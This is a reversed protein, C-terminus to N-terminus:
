GIIGWSGTATQGPELVVVGEGTAFANPPCSMPEVGLGTRRKREPLHDGTFIEVWRFTEDVWLSVEAPADTPGEPAQLTVYARGDAERRLDTYAHDIATDGLQKMTRFDYPTGTVDKRGHPIGREDAPLWTAGPIRLPCDDIRSTGATLYPHAGHGYPAASAGANTASMRVTLGSGPDLTYEVSLDLVHPYGPHAYLRHIMLLRHAEREAVTWAEWRALGHLATRRHPETIDLQRREGQFEYRGDAIRNPWPVLIQGHGGPPIEDPGFSDVLARRGDSLTRLAAGVSLATAHLGGASIEYEEGLPAAPRFGHPTM